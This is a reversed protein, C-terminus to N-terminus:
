PRRHAIKGYANMVQVCAVAVAVMALRGLAHGAARSHAKQCMTGEWMTGEM